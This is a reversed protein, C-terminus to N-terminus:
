SELNREGVGTRLEDARSGASDPRLPPTAAGAGEALGAFFARLADLSSHRPEWGLETRARSTDLMPLNLALDLLAPEAPVAHARWLAALAARALAAPVPVVRAGLVEAMEDPGIVPSAAVNFAGRADSLVARRYADAVDEAHLTQLQLGRPWPLVPLLDPRLLAQPVFPGLFIRRQETASERQFIFAPRMRVVRTGPHEAELTDLLREAYAKERGYAAAPLSHTPWSEDVLRGPAPSYAGVSSAHVVAPVGVDVASRFVRESGVVNARWTVQSQHTPQFAWALHVLADAGRLHPALNDEGVDAAVFETAGPLEDPQRRAVAVVESVAPDDALASVVASGVNGTAGTVVVRM